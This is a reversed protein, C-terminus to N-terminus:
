SNKPKYGTCLKKLFETTETPVAAMMEKGYKQVNEEAKLNYDLSAKLALSKDFADSFRWLSTVQEFDLTAMYELAHQFDKTDELLIKLYSNHQEHKRTLALAQEFFGASRCVRVATEM